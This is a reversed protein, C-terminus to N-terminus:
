VTEPSANLRQLRPVLGCAEFYRKRRRDDEVAALTRSGLDELLDIGLEHSYVHAYRRPVTIGSQELFSRIPELAPEPLWAFPSAVKAEAIPAPEVRAILSSPDRQSLEIRYFRRDGLGAEIRQIRRPARGFRNRM